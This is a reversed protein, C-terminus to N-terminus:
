LMTYLPDFIFSFYFNYDRSLHNAMFRVKITITESYLYLMAGTALHYGILRLLSDLNLAMDFIPRNIHM